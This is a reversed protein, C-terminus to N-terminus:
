TIAPALAAVAVFKSAITFNKAAGPLGPYPISAPVSGDKSLWLPQAGGDGYAEFYATSLGKWSLKVECTKKDLKATRYACFLPFDETLWSYTM